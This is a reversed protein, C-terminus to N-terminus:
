LTTKIYDIFSKCVISEDLQVLMPKSKLYSIFNEYLWTADPMIKLNENYVLRCVPLLMGAVYEKITTTRDKYEGIYPDSDTSKATLIAVTEELLNVCNEIKSEDLGELLGTKSWKEINNM